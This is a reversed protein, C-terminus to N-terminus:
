KSMWIWCRYLMQICRVFIRVNNLMWVSKLTSLIEVNRRECPTWLTHFDSLPIRKFTATEELV